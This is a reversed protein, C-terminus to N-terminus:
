ATLKSIDFEEPEPEPDEAIRAEPVEGKEASTTFTSTWSVSKMATDVAEKVAKLQQESMVKLVDVIDANTRDARDIKEDLMEKVADLFPELDTKPTVEKDSIMQAIRELAEFVPSLEVQTPEKIKDSVKKIASLVDDWRMKPPEVKEKEDKKPETPKRADLEEAIIRRIDSSALAGGGGRGNLSRAEITHSNEEDGYNESKTTYGSDTYVSTVISIERGEGSPDPAAVWSKTFRQGGKDDLNLTALIRDTFADRIVAQVYYTSTDLHNAIQRVVTFHKQPRIIM